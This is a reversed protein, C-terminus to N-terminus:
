LSFELPPASPRPRTNFATECIATIVQAVGFSLLAALAFGASIMAGILNLGRPGAIAPLFVLIAIALLIWGTIQHIISLIPKKFQQM